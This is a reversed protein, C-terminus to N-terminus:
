ENDLEIYLEPQENTTLIALSKIRRNKYKKWYDQKKEDEYEDFPMECCWGECTLIFSANTFKNLLEQVRM